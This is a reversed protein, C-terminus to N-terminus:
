GGIVVRSRLREITAAGIGRVDRLEELTRFQGLTKRLTLIREAMVPGVGPLSELEERTARNLDVRLSARTARNTDSRPPRASAGIRPQATWELFPRIRALTVPGLGLVSLLDAPVRFSGRDQRVQVIRRAVSPGVGPLCDLEEEGATNPDIRENSALPLSRRQAEDRSGRSADLLAAVGSSDASDTGLPTLPSRISEAAMRLLALGLVLLAVHKLARTESSTM